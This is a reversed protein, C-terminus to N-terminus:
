KEIRTCKGNECIYIGDNIYNELYPAVKEIGHTKNIITTNPSYNMEYNRNVTVIEKSPYLIELLCCMYYCYGIEHNKAKSAMFALLNDRAHAYKENLTIKYLKVLLMSVASNSSPMAGDYTEIPRSILKEDSNSNMYFGGSKGGFNDIIEDALNVADILYQSEYTASYIELLSLAYFAIDALQANYKAEGDCWRHFLRGSNKDTMNESIFRRTELAKELYAPYKFVKYAKALASIMLANWALLVKDDRHLKRRSKRYGYLKNLIEPEINGNGCILNVIGINDNLGYEKIFRESDINGLVDVIESETFTYYGGEEGESDADQGSVFAGSFLERMAYNLTKQAVQKYIDNGTAEYAETYAYALLANDYLMKEFHPVLWQRDTSYRSFGGGVHDYIGGEYMKDLTFFAMHRAKENGTIYSYRLLFIINHPTPFKPADGFGGWKDDFNEELEKVANEVLQKTVKQNRYSNEEDNLLKVLNDSKNLLIDRNNKWLKLVGVLLSDLGMMGYISSPPLYTGVYFPEKDSTMIVTLPWGGSGNMMLCAKMYIEDIDPREERDVKISIYNDNLIKAIDDDEFSEHAMVHCWHCTSYGISLFIPKDENKAKEFAEECWPYWNVPNESHQLLYPSKEYKLRNM